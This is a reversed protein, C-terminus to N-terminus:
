QGVEVISGTRHTTFEYTVQLTDGDTVILPRIKRLAVREGGYFLEVKVIEQESEFGIDAEDTFRALGDEVSECIKEFKEQNVSTEHSCKSSHRVGESTEVVIKTDDAFYDVM